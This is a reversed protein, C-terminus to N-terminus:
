KGILGDVHLIHNILWDTLFNLINMIQEDQDESDQMHELDFEELKEIFAQHQVKQTFLRKYHISEMYAEEDAFHKKTYERLKELIDSINDYKDPTFEAHLLEYAENAYAFIQKHEEDILDIGIFYEPKMEYM